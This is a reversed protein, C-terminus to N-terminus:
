REKTTHIHLRENNYQKTLLTLSEAEDLTYEKYYQIKRLMSLFVKIHMKQLNEIDFEDAPGFLETKTSYNSLWEILKAIFKEQTQTLEKYESVM